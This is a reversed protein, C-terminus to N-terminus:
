AQSSAAEVRVAPRNGKLSISHRVESIESCSRRILLRFHALKSWLARLPMFLFKRIVSIEMACGCQGWWTQMEKVSCRQIQGLFMHCGICFPKMKWLRPRFCTAMVAHRNHSAPLRCQHYVTLCLTAWHYGPPSSLTARLGSHTHSVCVPLIGSFFVCVCVQPSVPRTSVCFNWCQRWPPTTCYSGPGFLLSQWHSSLM